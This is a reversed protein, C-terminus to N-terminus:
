YTIREEFAKVNFGQQDMDIVAMGSFVEEQYWRNHKGLADAIYRFSLEQEINQLNQELMDMTPMWDYM